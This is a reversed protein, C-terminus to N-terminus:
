KLYSSYKKDNKTIHNFLWDRLTRMVHISILAKGQEAEQKLQTLKAILEDHKEKHSQYEPFNCKRLLSEEDAFHQKTYQLMGQLHRLAVDDGKGQKMQESMDNFMNIWKKHQNDMAENGVSLVDSWPFMPM